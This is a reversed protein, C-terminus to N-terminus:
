QTEIRNVNSDRSLVSLLKTKFAFLSVTSAGIKRAERGSKDDVLFEQGYGREAGEHIQQPAVLQAKDFESVRFWVGFVGNTGGM